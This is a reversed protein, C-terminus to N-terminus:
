ALAGIVAIRGIVNASSPLTRNVPKAPSPTYPPITVPVSAAHHYVRRCWTDNARQASMM